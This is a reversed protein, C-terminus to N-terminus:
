EAPTIVTEGGLDNIVTLEASAPAPEDATEFVPAVGIDRVANATLGQAAQVQLWDALPEGRIAATIKDAVEAFQPDEQVAAIFDAWFGSPEVGIAPEAMLGVSVTTERGALRVGNPLKNSGRQSKLGSEKVVLQRWLASWTNLPDNLARRIQDGVLDIALEMGADTMVVDLAREGVKTTICTEIVLTALGDGAGQDVFGVSATMEDVYIAIVLGEALVEDDISAIASDRVRDEALTRGLLAGRTCVRLALCSLSM